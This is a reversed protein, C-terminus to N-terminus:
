DAASEGEVDLHTRTRDESAENTAICTYDGRDAVEIDELNLLSTKKTNFIQIRSSERLLIGDKIWSFM